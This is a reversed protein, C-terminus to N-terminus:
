LEMVMWLLPCMSRLLSYCNFPSGSSAAVLGTAVKIPPTQWASDRYIRGMGTGEALTPPDTEDGARRKTELTVAGGPGANRACGTEARSRGYEIM